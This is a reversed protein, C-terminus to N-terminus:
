LGLNRALNKVAAKSAAYLSVPSSPLALRAAISSLLIIRSEASIFPLAVKTLLVPARVNTNFINSFLEPILEPTPVM